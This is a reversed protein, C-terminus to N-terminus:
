KKQIIFRYVLPSYTEESVPYVIVEINHEQADPLHLTCIGKRWIGVRRPPVTKLKNGDMKFEVEKIVDDRKFVGIEIFVEEKDMEFKYTGDLLRNQFDPKSGGFSTGGKSYVKFWSLDSLPISPKIGGRELKFEWKLAQAVGSKPVFQIVVDKSTETGLDVDKVAEYWTHFQTNTEKKISAEDGNVTIKDLLFEKEYPTLSILLRAVDGTLKYSPKGSVLKDIFDTQSLNKDDGIAVFKPNIKELDGSGKARFKLSKKAYMALDSPTVEIEIQKTENGLKIAHRFIYYTKSGDELKELVNGQIIDEGIKISAVEAHITLKLNLYSGKIDILPNQDTNLGTNFESPLKWEDKGNIEYDVKLLKKSKHALNFRWLVNHYSNTDKPSVKVVIERGDIGSVTDVAYWVEEDNIKKSTADIVPKNDVVVSMDKESQVEIKAPESAAFTLPHSSKCLNEFVEDNNLIVPTGSIVLENCPVDVTDRSRKIKFNFKETVNENVAKLILSVDITEGKDGLPVKALCASKYGALDYNKSSIGNVNFSMSDVISSVILIEAYPGSIVIENDKSHNQLASAEKKTCSTRVGERRGGYIVMDSVVKKLIVKYEIASSGEGVTIGIKTSYSQNNLRIRGDKINASYTVKAGKPDTEVAIDAFEANYPIGIGIPRDTTIEAGEKIQSDIILKKMVPTREEVREINLIYNNSETGKSVTIKLSNNGVNLDWYNNKLEPNFTIIAENPSAKATIEIKKNKTVGANMNESIKPIESEGVKLSVLIPKTSKPQSVIYITSNSNFLYKNKDTIEKGTANTLCIKSIEWGDNFKLEGIKGLLDTLGLSTGKLLEISRKEIKEVHDDTKIEITVKSKDDPNNEGSSEIKQKCSFFLFGLIGIILFTKIFRRSIKIKSNM